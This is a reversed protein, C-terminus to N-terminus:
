IIKIFLSTLSKVLFNSNSNKQYNKGAKKQYYYHVDNNFIAQLTTVRSKLGRLKLFHGYFIHFYACYYSILIFM